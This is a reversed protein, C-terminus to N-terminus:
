ELPLHVWVEAFAINQLPMPPPPHFAPTEQMAGHLMLAGVRQVNENASVPELQNYQEANVDATERLGM